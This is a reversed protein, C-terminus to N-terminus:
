EYSMHRSRLSPFTLLTKSWEEFNKVNQPFYVAKDCYYPRARNREEVALEADAIELIAASDVVGAVM